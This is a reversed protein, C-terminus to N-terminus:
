FRRELVYSGKDSKSIAWLPKKSCNILENDELDESYKIEIDNFALVLKSLAEVSNFKSSTVFIKYKNGKNSSTIKLGKDSLSRLNLGRRSMSSKGLIEQVQKRVSSRDGFDLKMGAAIMM